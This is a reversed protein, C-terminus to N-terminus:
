DKGEGSTSARMAEASPAPTETGDRAVTEVLELAPRPWGQGGTALVADYDLQKSFWKEKRTSSRQSGEFASRAARTTRARKANRGEGALISNLRDRQEVLALDSQAISRVYPALDTAIPELPGDFASVSLGPGTCLANEAPVSIADFCAFDQRTLTPPKTTTRHASHDTDKLRIHVDELDRFGAISYAALSSTVALEHSIDSHNVLEDIQLLQMGEIYQSRAKDKMPPQMTDLSPEAVIGSYVDAASMNDVFSAYAGLSASRGLQSCDMRQWGLATPPDLGFERWMWLRQDENSLSGLPAQAMGCQYTGESAVRLRRGKSDLDSGPPYRQYIWGLGGRPDGVGMQCWIDLEAISARLDAKKSAYLASVADRKLLHGEIAAIILLYDCALDPPPPSFRLIAHLTMAQLPVMDEDNCTMIFPRKSTEILKLVATWFDKDDKFLIDVEELLVLSQQQDKPPKKLAKQLSELTKIKAKAPKTKPIAAKVEAKPKFFANMKGQRGSALDRQFAEENRSPEEMSSLEGTDIGHHKVLHNEAMDGVRELVDKGSRKECPNIEFIKFGLEKAVAYAAATKGCGHPGSLLVANSLRSGDGAMQVISKAGKRDNSASVLDEPDALVDMDNVEEDSDVLFDDLDDQKRRRKKRPRPEFSSRNKSEPKPMSEVATVTTSLLWEKLVSMERSPQLVDAATLPAYKQTWSLTEGRGEDFATLSCQMSDLLKHLAPHAAPQSPKSLEDEDTRALMVSLEPAVRKTINEGCTLLRQPLRLSPHPEHFGDPRLQSEQEPQLHLAFQSLLSEDPPKKAAKRKRRQLPPNRSVLPLNSEEAEDLGRVHMSDKSPWAPEKAGPHKMMLRDKLLASSWTDVTELIPQMNGAGAMTQRRLKGPTVASAKRPSPQKLAPAEDLKGTFFPHTPKPPQKKRPTRKKKPTVQIDTAHREEGSLVRDIKLVVLLHREEPAADKSKRPRGRKKKVLESSETQEEDKPKKTPPSSFKGGASLRLMKKPPTKPAPATSEPVSTTPLPSSAPIMVQPSAQRQPTRQEQVGSSIEIPKGQMQGVEISEDRSTRRRKTRSVSTPEYSPENSVELGGDLLKAKPNVIDQLTKQTKGAEEGPAKSKRKKRSKGHKKPEDQEDDLTEIRDTAEDSHTSEGLQGNVKAFFPHLTKDGNM